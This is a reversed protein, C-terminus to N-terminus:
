LTGKMRYFYQTNTAPADMFGQPCNTSCVVLDVWDYLNSSGQLTWNVVCANSPYLFGQQVPPDVLMAQFSSLAPFRAKPPLPVPPLPQPMSCGQMILLAACGAFTKRYGRM